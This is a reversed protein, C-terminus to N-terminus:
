SKFLEEQLSTLVAIQWEEGLDSYDRQLMAAFPQWLNNQFDDNQFTQEKLSEDASNQSNLTQAFSNKINAYAKELKERKDQNKVVEFLNDYIQLSRLATYFQQYFRGFENKAAAATLVYAYGNKVIIAHMLKEGGWKSRIEVQSLSADGAKTKLFGLDKWTDGHADNIKKVNKLYSKLTGQYPEIMLNMSPPMDNQLKPGVVLTKVHPSLSKQEAAGWGKPPIFVAIGPSTTENIAEVTSDVLEAQIVPSSLVMTGFTMGLLVFKKIKIM